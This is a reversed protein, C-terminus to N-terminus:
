GRQLPDKQGQSKKPQGENIIENFRSSEKKMTTYTEIADGLRTYVCGYCWHQFCKGICQIGCTM